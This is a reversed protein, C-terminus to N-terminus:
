IVLLNSIKNCGEIQMAGKSAFICTCWKCTGTPCSLLIFLVLIRSSSNAESAECKFVISTLWQKRPIAEEVDLTLRTSSM